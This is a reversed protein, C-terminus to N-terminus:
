LNNKFEKIIRRLNNEFNPQPYFGIVNGAKSTNAYNQWAEEVAMDVVSYKADPLEEKFVKVIDRLYVIESGGLNLDEHDVTSTELLDCTAEVLDKVYVYGRCSSGDGYVTIPLGNKYQELWRYVVEDKRGEEGYVTFPRVIVTKVEANNVIKEGALKSIGYLSMPEKENTELFPLVGGRGFVSSSSYFILKEVKHKNCMEVINQTGLINTSIFEDPYFKSRRLGARAALHIVYRVQNCEFFSDLEHKDRIDRGSRLDYGLWSLGRKDLEATLHKGIFGENGTVLITKNNLEM